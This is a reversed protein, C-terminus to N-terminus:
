SNLFFRLHTSIHSRHNSFSLLLVLGVLYLCTSSSGVSVELSFVGRITTPLSILLHIIFRDLLSIILLLLTLRRDVDDQILNSTSFPPLNSISTDHRYILRLFFYETSQAEFYQYITSQIVM